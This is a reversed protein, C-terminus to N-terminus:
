QGRRKQFSLTTTRSDPVIEMQPDAVWVKGPGRAEFSINIRVADDPVLGGVAYETWVRPQLGQGNANSSVVPVVGTETSAKCVGPCNSLFAIGQIRDVRLLLHAYTREGEVRLAARIRINRGLYPKANLSKALGAHANEIAAVKDNGSIVVCRPATKACGKDAIVADFHLSAPLVFMTSSAFGWNMPRQGVEGIDFNLGLITNGLEKARLDATHALEPQDAYQHVIAEYRAVTGPRRLKEYCRAAGLLAKGALSRDDRSDASVQDFLKIAADLNGDVRELLLAQQYMDMVHPNQPTAAAFAICTVLLVSLVALRHVKV